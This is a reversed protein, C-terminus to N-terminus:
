RIFAFLNSKTNRNQEREDDKKEDNNVRDRWCCRSYRHQANVNEESHGQIAKRDHEGDDNFVHMMTPWFRVLHGLPHSLDKNVKKWSHEERRSHLSKRRMSRFLWGHVPNKFACLYEEKVEFNRYRVLLYRCIAFNVPSSSEESGSKSFESTRRAIM